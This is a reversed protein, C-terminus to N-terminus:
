DKSRAMTPPRTISGAEPKSETALTPMLPDVTAAMETSGSAGGKCATLVMSAAPRTTDGPNM